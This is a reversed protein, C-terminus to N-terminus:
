ARAYRPPPVPPAPARVILRSDGPLCHRGADSAFASPEIAAMVFIVRMSLPLDSDGGIAGSHCGPARFFMEGRQPAAKGRADCRCADGMPCHDGCHPCGCSKAAAQVKRGSCCGGAKAKPAAHGMAPKAQMLLDAAFLSFGEAFFNAAMVVLLLLAAPGRFCRLM